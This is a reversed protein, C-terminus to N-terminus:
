EEASKEEQLQADTKGQNQDLLQEKAKNEGDSDSLDNIEIRNLFIQIAILM